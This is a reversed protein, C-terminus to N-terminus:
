RMHRPSTGPGFLLGALDGALHAFLVLPVLPLAVITERQFRRKRILMRLLIRATQKGVWLPAVAGAMLRRIRESAPILARDFGGQCRGNHFNVALTGRIGLSQVHDVVMRDDSVLTEGRARLERQFHAEVMGIPPYLRPLAWRKYSVNAQGSIHDREGMSIPLLNESNGVLFIAWDILRTTAGNEVAGGIAAAKPWRRHADLVRECWDPRVICHDETVAVIAGTAAALGVARLQYPSSGPRRLWRVDAPAHDEPLGGGDGDAVILEAGVRRIQPLLAELCPRLAPWPQTNSIVVSLPTMKRPDTPIGGSVRPPYWRKRRDAMSVAGSVNYRYRYLHGLDSVV